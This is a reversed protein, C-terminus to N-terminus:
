GPARGGLCQWGTRWAARRGILAQVRDTVDSLVHARGSMVVLVTPTGTAAVTTVLEEQVGTLRLDTADRAEGVTSSKHLGSRGGLVVVAVDALAAAAVAEPFGARDDGVLECGKAYTVKARAGLAARLGALPTVHETYYAGPKLAGEGSPLFFIDPIGNGGNGNAPAGPGPLCTQRPGRRAM